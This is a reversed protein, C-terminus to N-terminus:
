FLFKFWAVALTVIASMAVLILSWIQAKQTGNMESVQAKINEQNTKIVAVDTKVKISTIRSM